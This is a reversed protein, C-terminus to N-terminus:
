RTNKRTFGEGEFVHGLHAGCAACVIEIRRGDADPIRKVAGRIADDFSPWGCGSKFKAASRYLAAGCRKCGYEGAEYFTDYTGSGPPETGKYVIVQEELPTLPRLPRKM